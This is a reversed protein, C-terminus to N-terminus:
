EVEYGEKKIINKISEINTKTEDFSVKVLGEKHFAKASQIGATESLEDEVLMECAHCTMGKTKITINEM